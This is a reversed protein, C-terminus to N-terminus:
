ALLLQPIRLSKPIDSIFPELTRIPAHPIRVYFSSLKGLVYM